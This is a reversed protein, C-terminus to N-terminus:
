SRDGGTRRSRTIPIGLRESVRVLDALSAVAMKQMVNRRDIQLTAESIGLEAAAQKNWLGSVVLPLM